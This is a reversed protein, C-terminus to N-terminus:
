ITGSNIATRAFASSNNHSQTPQALLVFETSMQLTSAVVAPLVVILPQIGHKPSGQLTLRAYAPLERNTPLQTLRVHFLLTITPLKVQTSFNM